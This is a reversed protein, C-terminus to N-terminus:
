VEQQLVEGSPRVDDAPPRRGGTFPATDLGLIRAAAQVEDMELMPGASNINAMIALRHLNPVIERL